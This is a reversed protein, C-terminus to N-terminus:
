KLILHLSETIFYPWILLFCDLSPAEGLQRLHLYWHSTIQPVSAAALTNHCEYLDRLSPPTSDALNGQITRDAKFTPSFQFKSDLMSECSPVALKRFIASDEINVCPECNEIKPLTVISAHLLTQYNHNRLLEAM